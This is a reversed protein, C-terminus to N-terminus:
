EEYGLKRRRDREKAIDAELQELAQRPTLTGRLALDGANEIQDRLYLQYPVPATAVINESEAVRLFTRYTPVTQLWKDYVPAQASKPFLPM